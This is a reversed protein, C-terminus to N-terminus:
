AAAGSGAPQEGAGTRAGVRALWGHAFRGQAPDHDILNMYHNIRMGDIAKVLAASGKAALQAKLARGTAPGYDWDQQLYGSLAGNKSLVNLARQLFSVAKKVGLNVACDFLSCALALDNLADGGIPTWFRLRYFAEVLAELALDAHWQHGNPPGLEGTGYPRPRGARVHVDIREWGPWDPHYKRSIGRYTEGGRDAPDNVYGGEHALTLALAQPFYSM